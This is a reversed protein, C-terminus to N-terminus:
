KRQTGIHGGIEIFLNGLTTSGVRKAGLVPKDELLQALAGIATCLRREVDKWYAAAAEPTVGDPDGGVQLGSADKWAEIELRMQDREREANKARDFWGADEGLAHELDSVRQRLRDIEAQMNKVSEVTVMIVNECIPKGEHLAHDGFYPFRRSEIM